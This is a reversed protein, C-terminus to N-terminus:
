IRHHIMESAIFVPSQPICAFCLFYTNDLYRSKVSYRTKCFVAIKHFLKIKRFIGRNQPIVQQKSLPEKWSSPSEDRPPVSGYLGIRSTGNKLTVKKLMILEQGPYSFQDSIGFCTIVILKLVIPMTKLFLLSNEMNNKSHKTVSYNRLLTDFQLNKRFQNHLNKFFPCRKTLNCELGGRGPCEYSSHM